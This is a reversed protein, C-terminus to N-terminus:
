IKKSHLLFIKQNIGINKVKIKKLTLENKISLSSIFAIGLDLSVATKIAPLSYFQNHIKSMFIKLYKKKLKQNDYFYLVNKLAIFKLSILDKNTLKYKKYVANSNSIILNLKNSGLISFNLNKIMKLNINNDCIGIDIKNSLIQYVLLPTSKVKINLRYRPYNKTLLLLIQPILYTGLLLNTGVNLNRKNITSIPHLLRCSEECLFLIRLAYTLFMKGANTLCINNNTRDLLILNLNNELKQIERSLTPQSLHLTKSALHFSKEDVITQLMRIQKLTFPFM